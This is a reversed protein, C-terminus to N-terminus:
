LLRNYRRRLLLEIQSTRGLIFQKFRDYDNGHLLASWWYNLEDIVTDVAGTHKGGAALTASVTNNPPKGQFVHECLRHRFLALSDLHEASWNHVGIPAALIGNDIVAFSKHGLRILNNLHRDTNAIHDDLAMAAPLKDWAQVEKVLKPLQLNPLRFAASRGDLRQTCFAPYHDRTEALEHILPSAEPTCIAKLPIHAVFAREPQPIGLAHGILFSTVENVLGRNLGEEYPYIKSYAEVQVGGGLAFRAVHVDTVHADENSVWHLMGRYASPNLIKILSNAPTSSQTTTM